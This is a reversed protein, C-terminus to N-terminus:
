FLRRQDIDGSQINVQLTNRVGFENNGGAATNIVESRIDGTNCCIFQSIMWEALSQGQDYADKISFDGVGSEALGKILQAGVVRTGIERYSRGIKVRDPCFLFYVSSSTVHLLRDYQATRGPARRDGLLEPFKASETFADRVPYARKSQILAAKSLINEGPVRLNAVLGMDAGNLGESHTIHEFNISLAPLNLLTREQNIRDQYPQIQESNLLAVLHGEIHEERMKPHAAFYSSLRRDVDKFLAKLENRINSSRIWCNRQM